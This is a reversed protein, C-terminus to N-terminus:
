AAGSSALVTLSVSAGDANPGQQDWVATITGGLQGGGGVDLTPSGTDDTGWHLSTIAPPAGAQTTAVGALLPTASYILRATYLGGELGLTIGIAYVAVGRFLTSGASNPNATITLLAAMAGFRVLPLEFSAKAKGGAVSAGPSGGVLTVAGTYVNKLPNAASGLDSTAGYGTEDGFEFGTASRRVRSDRTLGDGGFAIESAVQEVPFRLPYAQATSAQENLVYPLSFPHVDKPPNVVVMIDTVWLVDGPESSSIMFNPSVQGAYSSSDKVKYVNGVQRWTTDVYPVTYLEGIIDLSTPGNVQLTFNTHLAGPIPHERYMPRSAKVWATVLVTDGAHATPPMARTGWMNAGSVGNATIKMSTNTTVGTTTDQAIAAGSAGSNWGSVGAQFSSNPAENIIKGRAVKAISDLGQGAPFINALGLDRVTKNGSMFIDIENHHTDSGLDVALGDWGGAHNDEYYGSFRNLYGSDIRIGAGNKVGSFDAHIYNGNGAVIHVSTEGSYQFQSAAVWVLNADNLRLGDRGAQDSMVHHVSATYIGNLQFGDQGYFTFVHDIALKRGTVKVMAEHIQNKGILQAGRLSASLLDGNGSHTPIEICPDATDHQFEIRAFGGRRITHIEGRLTFPVTAPYTFPGDHLYTGPPVYMVGGGADVIAAKVAAFAAANDFTAYGPEDITHAGFNKVNFVEAFMDKLMRANNSGTALVSSNDAITGYGGENRVAAVQIGIATLSAADGSVRAQDQGLDRTVQAAKDAVHTAALDARDRDAQQFLMTLRDFATEHVKPAFPGQTSLAIPQTGPVVRRIRLMYGTPCSAAPNVLAVSGGSPSGAGTVSYDAGMTLVTETYPSAILVRSVRLHSPDLFRFPVAFTALAGNGNYEVVSSATAVSM